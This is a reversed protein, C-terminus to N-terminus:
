GKSYTSTPKPEPLYVREGSEIVYPRGACNFWILHEIPGITSPDALGILPGPRPHRVRSDGHTIWETAKM